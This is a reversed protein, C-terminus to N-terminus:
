CNLLLLLPLWEFEFGYFSDALTFVSWTVTPSTELFQCTINGTLVQWSVFTLLRYCWKSFSKKFRSTRKYNEPFTVSFFKFLTIKLEHETCSSSRKGEWRKSWFIHSRQLNTKFFFIIVLNTNAQALEFSSLFWFQARSLSFKFSSFLFFFLSM